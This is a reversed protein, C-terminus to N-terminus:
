VAITGCRQSASNDPGAAPTAADAVIDGFQDRLGLGVADMDRCLPRDAPQHPAVAALVASGKVVLKWVRKGSYERRARRNRFGPNPPDQAPEVPRALRHHRCRRRESRFQACAPEAIHHQPRAADIGRQEMRPDGIEAQRRRDIQTYAAHRDLLIEFSEEFEVQGAGLHHDAVARRPSRQLALKGVRHKEAGPVALFQRFDIGAGVHEHERALGIREAQHQELRQGAAQRNRRKRNGAGAVHDAIGRDGHELIVARPRGPLAPSGDRAQTSKAARWM